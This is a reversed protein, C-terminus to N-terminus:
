TQCSVFFRLLFPCFVKLFYVSLSGYSLPFRNSDALVKKYHYGLFVHSVNAEPGPSNEVACGSSVMEMQMRWDSCVCKQVSSYMKSICDTFHSQPYLCASVTAHYKRYMSMRLLKNLYDELQRQWFMM